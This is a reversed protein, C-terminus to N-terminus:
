VNQVLSAVPSGLQVEIRMVGNTELDRLGKRIVTQLDEVAKESGWIKVLLSKLSSFRPSRILEMATEWEKSRIFDLDADSVWLVVEHVTPLPVQSLM